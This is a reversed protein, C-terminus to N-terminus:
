QRRAAEQANRADIWQKTTMSKTSRPDLPDHVPNTSGSGVPKIPNPASTVKRARPTAGALEVALKGIEIAQQIPSLNAIRISEKVNKGLHYAIDPGNNEAMIVEAMLDTIAPGGDWPQKGVVEDYDPYVTERIQEVRQEYTSVITEQRAQQERQMIRQDAKWEAVADTYQDWDGNFQDPSPPPNNAPRQAEQEQAAIDRKAKRYAVEREKQLKRAVEEETFTKPEKPEDGAPTSTEASENGATAELEPVSAAADTAGEPAGQFSNDSM